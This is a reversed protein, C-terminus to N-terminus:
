KILWFTRDISLTVKIDSDKVPWIHVTKEGFRCAKVKDIFFVLNGVKNYKFYTGPRFIASLLNDTVVLTYYDEEEKIDKNSSKYLFKLLHNYVKNKYPIEELM